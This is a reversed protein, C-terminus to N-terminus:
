AKDLENVAAWFDHAAGPSALTHARMQDGGAQWRHDEGAETCSVLPSAPATAQLVFGWMDHSLAADDAGSPTSAHGAEKDRPPAPLPVPQPARQPLPRLPPPKHITLPRTGSGGVSAEAAGAAAHATAQKKRKTSAGERGAGHREAGGQTEGGGVERPGGRKKEVVVVPLSCHELPWLRLIYQLRAAGPAAHLGISAMCNVTQGPRTMCRVVTDVHLRQSREFAAGVLAYMLRVRDEPVM